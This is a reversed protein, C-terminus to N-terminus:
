KGNAKATAIDADLRAHASGYDQSLADLQEQTLDMGTQQAQMVMVNISELQQILQTALQLAILANSM